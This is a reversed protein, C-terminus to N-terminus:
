TAASIRRLDYNTPTHPELTTEQTLQYVVILNTIGNELCEMPSRSIWLYGLAGAHNLDCHYSTQVGVLQRKFAIFQKIIPIDGLPDIGLLDYNVKIVLM